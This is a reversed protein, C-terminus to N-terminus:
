RAHASIKRDLELIEAAALGSPRGDIAWLLTRAADRDGRALAAEVEAIKSALTQHLRANCQAFEAADPAGPQDLAALAREMSAPDLAEHALGKAIRIQINLVCWSRLSDRATEDVRLNGEDAEGTTAARM